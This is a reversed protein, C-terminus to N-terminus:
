QTQAENTLQNNIEIKNTMARAVNRLKQGRRMEYTRLRFLRTSDNSNIESQVHYYRGFRFPNHMQGQIMAIFLNESIRCENDLPWTM